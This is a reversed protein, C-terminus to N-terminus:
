KKFMFDSVRITDNFVWSEQAAYAVGGDRPLQYSRTGDFPCSYMEGQSFCMNSFVCYANFNHQGLLAMLVSTKGSATPGLILNIAGQQFTLEEDIRLVFRHIAAQNDETWTYASPYFKIAAITEPELPTANTFNAAAPNLLKAKINSIFQSSFIHLHRPLGQCLLRQIPGPISQSFCYEKNCFYNFSCFSVGRLFM